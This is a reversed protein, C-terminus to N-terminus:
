NTSIGSQSVSFAAALVSDQGPEGQEVNALVRRVSVEAAANETLWDPIEVLQDFPLPYKIVAAPRGPVGTGILVEAYVTGRVRLGGLDPASSEIVANAWDMLTTRADLSAPLTVRASLLASAEAEAALKESAVDQFETEIGEGEVSDILEVPSLRFASVRVEVGARFIMHGNEYRAAADSVRAFQRAAMGPEAGPLDLVEEIPASAELARLTIEDGQRYVAQCAVSGSVIVRGDQVTIEGPIYRADTLLPEVAERGAGPVLAEATVSAQLDGTGILEEVEISQRTISLAM